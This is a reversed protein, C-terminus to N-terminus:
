GVIKSYLSYTFWGLAAGAPIDVVYHQKTFLCSMGILAPFALTAMGHRDYLHLATLMAVSTHMSPFSNSSADFRQVFALFRESLTRPPAPVRWREPTRVPFALFFAAQFALLLMYSSAVETFEQPTRLVLNVYLIAPYYLFSYIWVWQPVYPIFDDLVANFERPAFLMNRQCWFYFQYAGVILVGSLVLNIMYNTTRM